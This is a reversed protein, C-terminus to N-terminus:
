TLHHWLYSGIGAASIVGLVILYLGYGDDQRRRRQYHMILGALSLALGFIMLYFVYQMLNENWYRRLQVSFGLHELFRKDIFSEEPRAKGFIVLAAFMVLWGALGFLRMLRVVLDAGKRRETFLRRQRAM